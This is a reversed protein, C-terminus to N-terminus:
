AARAAVTARSAGGRRRPDELVRRVAEATAEPDRAGPIIIEVKEIRTGGGSIWGGTDVASHLGGGGAVRNRLANVHVVNAYNLLANAAKTAAKELPKIADEWELAKLQDRATGLEAAGQIFGKGAAMMAEGAKVLGDAPDKFPVIWNVFDGLAKIVYGVATLIGGAINFFVQGVYTAAIATLKFIPFLGKLVPALADAFIAAVNGIINTLPELVPALSELAAKFITGVIALPNFVNLLSMAGGALKGLVDGAMGQVQGGLAKARMGFTIGGGSPSPMGAPNAIIGPPSGGPRAGSPPDFHANGALGPSPGGKRWFLRALDAAMQRDIVDAMEEMRETLTRVAAAAETAGDIIPAFVTLGPMANRNDIEARAASALSVLGKYRALLADYEKKQRLYVAHGARGPDGLGQDYLRQVSRFKEGVEPFMARAQAGATSAQAKLAAHDLTDLSARYQDAANAAALADMKNKIYWTSLLTLGAIVAGGIGLTTLMGTAAVKLVGLAQASVGLAAAFSYITRVVSSIALVKFLGGLAVTVPGIIALTGGLAVGWRVVEPNVQNLRDFLRGLAETVAIVPPLLEKGINGAAIKAADALNEFSGKAGSSVRPLKELEAVIAEVFQTADLKAKQLVETDATGFAAEMVKRIQPVREAIQNIEEASIKGKSAIQSLAIIVGDLEAKGRGVTALANGFSSLSREALSASFGAAQLNIAGRVAEEFGLGPLKSVQQLRRMQTEAAATSGAVAVLGKRLSEMDAAVKVAGAGMAALPLTVRTTIKKGLSTVSDSFFFLTREAKALKKDFDTLDAGIRVAMSALASSM